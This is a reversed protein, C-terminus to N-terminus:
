DSQEVLGLLVLADIVDQVSPTTLPVNPQDVPTSQFFGLFGDVTVSIGQVNFTGSIAVDDEFRADGDWSHVHGDDDFYYAQDGASDVVVDVQADAAPKFPVQNTPGSPQDDSDTFHIKGGIRTSGDPEQFEAPYTAGDAM